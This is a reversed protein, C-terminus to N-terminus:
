HRGTWDELQLDRDVGDMENRHAAEEVLLTIFLHALDTLYDCLIPAGSKQDTRDMQAAVLVHVDERINMDNVTAGKFVLILM